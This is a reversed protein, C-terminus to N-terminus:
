ELCHRDDHRPNNVRDSIPYLTIGDYAPKELLQDLSQRSQRQDLWPRYHEADIIVPMRDHIPQILQNAATTIITCSYLMSGGHEWHEWLGAFAFLRRDERCIHYAQKGQVTKHWEYFGTAPILCRRKHYAAKFSPKEGLTEARANILAHGIKSDKAWSPVLGWDLSVASLGNSDPQVIGLIKQGPAINYSIKYGSLQDLDFAQMLQEPTALMNFRGCM